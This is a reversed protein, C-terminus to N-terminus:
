FYYSTTEKLDMPLNKVDDKTLLSQPWYGPHFPNVLKNVAMCLNHIHLYHEVCYYQNWPGYVFKHAAIDCQPLILAYKVM